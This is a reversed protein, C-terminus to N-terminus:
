TPGKASCLEAFHPQMRMIHGNLVSEAADLDSKAFARVIARHDKSSKARSGPAGRATFRIAGIRGSVLRYAQELLGNGCHVIFANHFAADARAADVVAGAEEARSQADDAAKLADRTAEPARSHALRMAQGEIIARYECLEAVDAISPQFVFSGRQPKIEILGQLALASLAERVPTRSVGLMTALRDESVAEGLKLGGYMIAERLEEEVRVALLPPRALALPRM